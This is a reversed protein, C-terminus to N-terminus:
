HCKDKTPINPLSSTSKKFGFLINTCSETDDKTEALVATTMHKLKHDSVYSTNLGKLGVVM